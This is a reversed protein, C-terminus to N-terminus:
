TTWPTSVAGSVVCFAQLVSSQPDNWEPEGFTLSLRYTTALNPAQGTLLCGIVYAVTRRESDNM